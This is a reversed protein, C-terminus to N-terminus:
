LLPQIIKLIEDYEGEDLQIERDGYIMRKQDKMLRIDELNSLFGSGQIFFRDNLEAVSLCSEWSGKKSKNDDALNITGTYKKSISLFSIKKKIEEVM